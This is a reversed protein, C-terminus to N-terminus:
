NRSGALLNAVGNNATPVGLYEMAVISADDRLGASGTWQQIEELLTSIGQELPESRMRELTQILRDGGFLKDEPTMAEPIGDSYLYLRDGPELAITQGEYPLLSLGIPFSREEIIRGPGAAPLHAVGPHGASVYRFEASPVDLIGYVMTFYQETADDYPFMRNLQEAVEAPPLHVGDSGGEGGQRLVSSPESPHSLVRSLSVSLLASAVGHGSVDFVYLVAQRDDLAFVNLGDGALEDCPRYHWAFRPEALRPEGRLSSHVRSRPRRACTGGWGATPRPWDVM